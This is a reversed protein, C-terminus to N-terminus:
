MKAIIVGSYDSFGVFAVTDGKKIRREDAIEKLATKLAADTTAEAMKGYDDVLLHLPITYLDSVADIDDMPAVRAKSGEITLVIGKHVM